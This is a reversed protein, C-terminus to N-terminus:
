TSYTNLAGATFTMNYIVSDMAFTNDDINQLTGSLNYIETKILAVDDFIANSLESLDFLRTDLGDLRNNVGSIILEGDTSCRLRRQGTGDFATLMSLSLAVRSADLTLPPLPDRIDFDTFLVLANIRVDSSM